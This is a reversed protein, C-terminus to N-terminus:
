PGDIKSPTHRLAKKRINLAQSKRSNQPALQENEKEFPSIVKGM